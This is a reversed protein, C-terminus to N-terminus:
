SRDGSDKLTFSVSMGPEQKYDDIKKHRKFWEFFSLIEKTFEKQESESKKISILLIDNLMESSICNGLACLMRALEDVRKLNEQRKEFRDLGEYDDYCPM